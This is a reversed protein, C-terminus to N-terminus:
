LGNFLSPRCYVLYDCVFHSLLMHIFAAAIYM